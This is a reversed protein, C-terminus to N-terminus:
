ISINFLGYINIYKEKLRIDVNYKNSYNLIETKVSFIDSVKKLFNIDILYENLNSIKRKIIEESEYPLKRDINSKSKDEKRSQIFYDFPLIKYNNLLKNKDLSLRVSTNRFDFKFNKDRTLSITKRIEGFVMNDYLGINLSNTNLIEKLSFVDTFHYLPGFNSKLYSENFNKYNLM